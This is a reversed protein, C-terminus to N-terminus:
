SDFTVEMETAPEGNQKDQFTNKVRKSKRFYGIWLLSFIVQWIFTAWTQSVFEEEITPILQTSLLELGALIAFVAFLIIVLTPAIAKKKYFFYLVVISFLILLSTSLADFIIIPGWLPHYVDSGPTTLPKWIDPNFSPIIETYLMAGDRIPLCSLGIAPLLLWGGFGKPEKAKTKQPERKNNEGEVSTTEKEDM